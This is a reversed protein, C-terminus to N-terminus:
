PHVAAQPLGPAVSHPLAGLLRKMQRLATEVQSEDNSQVAGAVAIRIQPLAPDLPVGGLRMSYDRVASASLDAAASLGIGPALVRATSILAAIRWANPERVLAALGDSVACVLPGVVAIAGELRDQRARQIFYVTAAAINDTVRTEGSLACPQGRSRLFIELPAHRLRAELAGHWRAAVKPNPVLVVV